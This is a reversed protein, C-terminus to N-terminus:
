VFCCEFDWVAEFYSCGSRVAPGHQTSGDTIIAKATLQANADLVCLLEAGRDDVECPTSNKWAHVAEGSHVQVMGFSNRTNCYGNVNWTINRPPPAVCM